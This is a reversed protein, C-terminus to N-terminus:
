DLKVLIVTNAKVPVLIDKLEPAKFTPRNDSSVGWKETPVGVFNKDIKDNDNEDHFAEIGVKQATGLPLELITEKNKILAAKEYLLKGGADRVRLMVKGKDNNFGIIKIKYTDELPIMSLLLAIVLIKM